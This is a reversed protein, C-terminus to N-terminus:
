SSAREFEQNEGVYTAIVRRIQRTKLLQGLAFEDVGANNSIVTLNRTGREKLATILNEPVGCLGFGGVM